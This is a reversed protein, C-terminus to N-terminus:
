RDCDETTTVVHPAHGAFKPPQFMEGEGGRGKGLEKGERM